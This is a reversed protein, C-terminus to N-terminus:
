AYLFLINTIPNVTKKITNATTIRSINIFRVITPRNIEATPKIVNIAPKTKM